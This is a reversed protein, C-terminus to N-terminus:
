HIFVCSSIDTSIGQFTLLAIEQYQSKHHNSFKKNIYKKPIETNFHYHKYKCKLNCTRNRKKSNKFKIKNINKYLLNKNTIQKMRILIYMDIGIEWNMVGGGGCGEGM